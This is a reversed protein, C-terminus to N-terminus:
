SGVLYQHSSQVYQTARQLRARKIGQGTKKSIAAAIGVRLVLARMHDTCLHSRLKQGIGEGLTIIQHGRPGLAAKRPQLGAVFPAKACQAPGLRHLRTHCGWDVKFCGVGLSQLKNREFLQPQICQLHPRGVLCWVGLGVVASMHPHWFTLRNENAKVTAFLKQWVFENLQQVRM